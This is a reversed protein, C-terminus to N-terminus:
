PQTRFQYRLHHALQAVVFEFILGSSRVSHRFKVVFEGSLDNEGECFFICPRTAGTILEREFRVATLRPFSPM